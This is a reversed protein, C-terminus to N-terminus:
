RDPSGTGSCDTFGNFRALLVIGFDLFVAFFSAKVGIGIAPSQNTLRCGLQVNRWHFFVELVYLINASVIGDDWDFFGFDFVPLPYPAASM